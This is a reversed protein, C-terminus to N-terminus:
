IDDIFDGSNVNKGIDEDFAKATIVEEIDLQAVQKLLSKSIQLVNSSKDDKM